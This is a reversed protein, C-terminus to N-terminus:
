SQGGPFLHKYLEDDNAPQAVSARIHEWLEAEEPSTPPWLGRFEEDVEGGDQGRTVAAAHMDTLLGLVARAEDRRRGEPFSALMRQAQEPSIRGYPNRVQAEKAVADADLMWGAPTRWAPIRGSAAYLRATERTCGLVAAAESASLFRRM